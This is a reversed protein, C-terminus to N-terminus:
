CKNCLLVLFEDETELKTGYDECVTDLEALLLWFIKLTKALYDIAEQQHKTM